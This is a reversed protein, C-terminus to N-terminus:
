RVAESFLAVLRAASRDVDFDSAVAAAAQDALREGEAPDDALREVATAVGAADGPEALLGTVGDRVAEPIGSLRSAVVPVGVAMAELIAVPIGERRGNATPVSPAVLVDAGELVARVEPRPVRGTIRVRDALGREAALAVLRDRDPGDGVLTARVDVGADVLRRCAEIAVAQGKVEHLTGICCLHLPSGPQRPARARRPLQRSDIGCHVVQVRDRIEPGCEDVIVERNYDSIAVVFAAGGVKTALMERDRHLDSGHATFSFPIGTLEHVVWGVVAPHTAFHCHVHDVGGAQLRRALDVAFPFSAVAGGLLRRCTWNERIVVGAAAAVARPRTVLGAVFGVIVRASSVPRQHVRPALAVAMPQVVDARERRLPHITVDAGARVVADVEDVVFTETLRPVRSVVYAVRPRGARPTTGSSSTAVRTGTTM